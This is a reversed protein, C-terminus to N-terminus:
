LDDISNLYEVIIDGHCTNPKCFCGLTKGKLAIVRDKFEHDEDIRTYFYERYQTLISARSESSKLPIPNGFYGNLGKGSRGIYIDYPEKYLNVVRTQQKLNGFQSLLDM